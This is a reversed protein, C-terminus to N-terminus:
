GKEKSSIKKEEGNWLRVLNSRHTYFILVVVFIGFFLLSPEDYGFIAYAFLGFTLTATISSISVIGTAMLMVVFVGICGLALLYHISFVMGLLTAVGKGGRFQAFVPYIHGIVAMMGYLIKFGMINAVEFDSTLFLALNAATFGKFVDLILVTIGSQKGLVRFTNTAGANKSGFDRVDVGHFGKGVWLSFPLSGILYALAALLYIIPDTM